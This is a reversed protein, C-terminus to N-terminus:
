SSIQEIRQLITEQLMIADSFFKAAWNIYSMPAYDGWIPYSGAVGGRIGPNDSDLSQTETVQDILKMATNLFRADNNLEYLKLFIIALQCNGTLCSYRDDSRWNKDLTDPLPNPMAYLNPKDVEYAVMIKGLALAIVSHVRHQLEVDLYASSELLGEYTYALTHTFPKENMAATFGMKDIWGNERVLSMVWLINKGGGQQYREDGTIEFAKFLAWAVRSYYAHPINNYSYRYWAGDPDQVCILWDAARKAAQLFRVEGTEAYLSCLGILVQGTDFVLPNENIRLGGYVAGNPMQIDIEWDGMRLAREMYKSNDVWKSYEIFTQIIYGTTEPYPPMWWRNGSRNNRKIMCYGGSVGGSGTIDQARCLWDM